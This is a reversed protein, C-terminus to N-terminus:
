KDNIGLKNVTHKHVVDPQKWGSQHHYGLTMLSAEGLVQFKSQIMVLCRAKKNSRHLGISKMHKDLRLLPLAEKDLLLLDQAKVDVLLFAEEDLLM